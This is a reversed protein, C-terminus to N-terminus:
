SLPGETEASDNVDAPPALAVQWCSDVPERYDEERHRVGGYVPRAREYIDFEQPRGSLFCEINTICRDIVEYWRKLFKKQTPVIGRSPVDAPNDASKVTIVTLREWMFRPIESLLNNAYSSSSYGRRLVCAVASNDVVLTYHTNSGYQDAAFKLTWVAAYMEKIFIHQASLVTSFDAGHPQRIRGGDRTLEVRGWRRDSADSAFYVSRETPQLTPFYNTENLVLHSVSSVLIKLNTDSCTMSANWSDSAATHGVLSAIEMIEKIELLPQLKVTSNWLCVGVVRAVLRIPMTPEKLLPLLNTKWREIKTPDHRWRLRGGPSVGLQIGLHVCRDEKLAEREEETCELPEDWTQNRLFKSTFTRLHKEVVKHDKLSRRFAAEFNAAQSEHKTAVLINDYLLFGLAVVIGNETRTLFRPPTSPATSDGPSLGALVKDFFGTALMLTYGISQCVWPSWSWGMPCVRWRFTMEPFDESAEVRLGFFNRIGVAKIGIQHFWHRLDGVVFNRLGYKEMLRLQEALECLNVPPPIRCMASVTRGDFISRTQPGANKFVEFYAGVVKLEKLEATEIVGTWPCKTLEVIHALWKRNTKKRKVYQHDLICSALFVDERTVIQCALAGCAFDFVGATLFLKDVDAVGACEVPDLTETGTPWADLTHPGGDYEYISRPM